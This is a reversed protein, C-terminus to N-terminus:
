AICTVNCGTGTGTDASDIATDTGDTEIRVRYQYSTTCVGLDSSYALETQVTGEWTWAKV